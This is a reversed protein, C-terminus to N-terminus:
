RNTLKKLEASVKAIERINKSPEQQLKLLKDTLSEVDDSVIAQGGGVSMVAAPNPEVQRAKGIGLIGLKAIQEATTGGQRLIATM